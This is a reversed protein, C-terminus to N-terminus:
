FEVVCFKFIVGNSGMWFKLGNGGDIIRNDKKIVMIVVFYYRYNIRRFFKGMIVECDVVLDM